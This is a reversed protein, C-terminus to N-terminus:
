GLLNYRLWRVLVYLIMEDIAFRDIVKVFIDICVAHMLWIVGM